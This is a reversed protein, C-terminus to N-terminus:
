EVRCDAYWFKFSGEQFPPATKNKTVKFQVIQGIVETTKKDDVRLKESPQKVEVRVSTFFRLAMGGPTTTPPGYMALTSRLQNIFLILTKKNLANAKKVGKSMLRAQLAMGVDDMNDEMEKRPILAAVSDVVIIDPEAALLRFMIDFADEGISVQSVILSKVNVGLAKAFVPDFTNEADIYVCTKGKKQAQAITLLCILSKGSSQLGYLEVIRGGPFGGGLAHDFADVGIPFREGTVTAMSEMSSLTNAGYKRNVEAMIRQLSPIDVVDTTKTKTAM